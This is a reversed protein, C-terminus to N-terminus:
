RNQVAKFANSLHDDLSKPDATAKRAPANGSLNTQAKRAKAIAEQREKDKRETEQKLKSTVDQEYLAPDSRLARGYADDLSTSLGNGMFVSMVPRLQEFHPYKPNGSADKTEKFQNIEQELSQTQQLKRQNEQQQLSGKITNLENRLTSIEPDIYEQESAQSGGLQELNINYNRLLARAANIPDTRLKQDWKLAEVGNIIVDKARIGARQMEQKYPSIAQGLDDYERKQEAIEQSRKTHAAEMKKHIQLVLEKSEPDKLRSYLQKDESSWHDPAAFPEAQEAEGEVAEEAANEESPETVPTTEEESPEDKSPEEQTKMANTILSDLDSAEAEQEVANQNEETM